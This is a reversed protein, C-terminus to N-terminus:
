PASSVEEAPGVLLQLLLWQKKQTGAELVPWASQTVTCVRMKATTVELVSKADMPQAGLRICVQLATKVSLYTEMIDGNARPVARAHPEVPYKIEKAHCAIKDGVYLKQCISDLDVFSASMSVM